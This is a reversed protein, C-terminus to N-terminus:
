DSSFFFMRNNTHVWTSSRVPCMQMRYFATDDMIITKGDCKVFSRKQQESPVMQSTRMIEKMERNSELPKM